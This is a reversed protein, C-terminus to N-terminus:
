GQGRELSPLTRRLGEVFAREDRARAFARKPVWCAAGDIFDLLVGDGAAHVRTLQVWPYAFTEGSDFATRIGDSDITVTIPGASARRARLAKMAPQIGYYGLGGMGPALAYATKWVSMEPINGLLGMVGVTTFGTALISICVNGIWNWRMLAHRPRAVADRLEGPTMRFSVSVDPTAVEASAHHM